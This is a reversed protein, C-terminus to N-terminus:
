HWEERVGTKNSYISSQLVQGWEEKKGADAGQKALRLVMDSGCAPILPTPSM